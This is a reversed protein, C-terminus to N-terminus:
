YSSVSLVARQPQSVNYRMTKTYQDGHFMEPGKFQDWSEFEKNQADLFHSYAWHRYDEKFTRNWTKRYYDQITANNYVENVADGILKFHPNARYRAGQWPDRNPFLQKFTDLLLQMSGGGNGRLDIILQEKGWSTVLFNTIVSQAEIGYIDDGPAFSSIKLVAIDEYGEGDLFYGAVEGSKTSFIPGPVGSDVTPGDERKQLHSSTLNAAARRQNKFEPAWIVENDAADAGSIAGKCFKKYFSKGDKVGKFDQDTWATNMFQIDTGNAFSINTQPGDFRSQMMFAGPHGTDGKAWLSNIRGDTSGYQEWQALTELYQWPDQDNIKTVNSIKEGSIDGNAVKLADVTVYLNPMTVGEESLAVLSLDRQWGFVQLIDPAYNLHFNGSRVTIEQIAIQVWYEGDYQDLSSKINDLEGIMDLSGSEWDAPPNKLWSIDSHWQRAIKLEDILKKDGEIGVPVSTLCAFASGAPFSSANQSQLTVIYECPEVNNAGTYSRVGIVATSALLLNRSRM